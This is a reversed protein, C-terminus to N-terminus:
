HLPVSIIDMCIGQILVNKGTAGLRAIVRGFNNVTCLLHVCSRKLSQILKMVTLHYWVRWFLYYLAKAVKRLSLMKRNLLRLVLLKLDWPFLMVQPHLNSNHLWSSEWWSGVSLKNHGRIKLYDCNLWQRKLVVAQSPQNQVVHLLIKIERVQPVQSRTEKRTSNHNQPSKSQNPRYQFQEQSM